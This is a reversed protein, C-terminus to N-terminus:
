KEKKDYKIDVARIRVSVDACTMGTMNELASKIKSQVQTCTKPINYGYEVTVIIRVSVVGELVDVRIGRRLNKVGARSVMECPVSGVAAVGKVEAAALAAITMVVDDAIQVVGQKDDGCIIVASRELEKEM